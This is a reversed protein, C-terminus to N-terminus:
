HLIILNTPNNFNDRMKYVHDRQSVLVPRGNSSGLDAMLDATLDMILDATPDTMLDATLDAMLVAMLDAILDATSDTMLNVTLVATYTQRQSLRGNLHLRNMIFEMGVSTHDQLINTHSETEQQNEAPNPDKDYTRVDM